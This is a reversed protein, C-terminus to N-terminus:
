GGPKLSDSLFNLVTNAVKPQRNAIRFQNEVLGVVRRAEPPLQATGFKKVENILVQQPQIGTAGWIDINKGSVLNPVLSSSLFGGSSPPELNSIVDDLFSSTSTNKSQPDAHGAMSSNSAISFDSVVGGVNPMPNRPNALEEANPIVIADYSFKLIVECANSSDEASLDNLEISSITPNVYLYSIQRAAGDNTPVIYTQTIKIVQFIQGNDTNVAARHSYDNTAHTDGSFTMGHGDLMLLNGTTMDSSMTNARRTIPQFMSLVFRFFDIVSNSSDDYFTISVDETKTSKVVKTKFNYQNIDEFEFTLKPRDVAKAMFSMNKAWEENALESFEPKLMFDVYFMFKLKPRFQANALGYAYSVSHWGDLKNNSTTTRARPQDLDNDAIFDGLEDTSVEQDVGFVSNELATIPDEVESFPSTDALDFLESNIAAIVDDENPFDTPYPVIGEDFLDEFSMPM